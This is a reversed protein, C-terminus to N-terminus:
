LLASRAPEQLGMTNNQPNNKMLKTLFNNSESIARSEMKEEREHEEDLLGLSTLEVSKRRAEAEGFVTYLELLKQLAEVKDKLALAHNRTIESIREEFLGVNSEARGHRERATAMESASKAQINQLQAEMMAQKIM